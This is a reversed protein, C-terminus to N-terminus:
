RCLVGWKRLCETTIKLKKGMALLMITSLRINVSPIAGVEIDGNM